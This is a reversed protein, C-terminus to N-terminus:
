CLPDNACHSIVELAHQKLIITTHIRNFFVMSNDIWFIIVLVNLWMTVRQEMILHAGIMWYFSFYM